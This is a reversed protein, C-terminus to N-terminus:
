ISSTTSLCHVLCGEIVYALPLSHARVSGIFSNHKFSTFRTSKCTPGHSPPFPFLSFSPPLSLHWSLRPIRQNTAVQKIWERFNSIIVVKLKRSCHTILKTLLYTPFQRCLFPISCLCALNHAHPHKRLPLKWLTFLCIVPYTNKKETCDLARSRNSNRWFSKQPLVPEPM